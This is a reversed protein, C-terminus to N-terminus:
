MSFNISFLTYSHGLRASLKNDGIKIDNYLFNFGLDTSISLQNNFMYEVGYAINAGFMSGFDKLEDLMDDLEDEIENDDVNIKFLPFVSFLEGKYYTQIKDSLSLDFRKGIKPMILIVDISAEYTEGEVWEEEIYVNQYCDYYGGYWYDYCGNEVWQSTYYGGEYYGSETYDQSFGFSLLNLGFLYNDNNFTANYGLKGNIGISLKDWQIEPLSKQSYISSVLLGLIFIYTKM